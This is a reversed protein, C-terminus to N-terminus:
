QNIQSKRNMENNKSIEYKDKFGLNYSLASLSMYKKKIILLVVDLEGRNKMTEVLWFCRFKFVIIATLKKKEKANTYKNVQAILQPSM